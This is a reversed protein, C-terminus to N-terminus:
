LSAEVRKLSIPARSDAGLWWRFAGITICKREDSSARLSTQAIKLHILPGFKPELRSFAM